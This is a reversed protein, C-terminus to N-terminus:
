SYYSAVSHSSTWHLALHYDHSVGNCPTEVSSGSLGSVSHNQAQCLVIAVLAKRSGSEEPNFIFFTLLIKLYM